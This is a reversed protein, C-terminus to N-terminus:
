VLTISVNSVPEIKLKNKRLWVSTATAYVVGVVGWPTWDKWPAIVGDGSEDAAEFLTKMKKTHLRRDREQRYSVM